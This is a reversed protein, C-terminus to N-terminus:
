RLSLIEGRRMGTNIALIVIPQLHERDGVCQLLLKEQEDTTLYRTRRNDERLMQVQACPNVSAVGDRIAMNFIRSIMALERNVSAPKRTEGFKTKGHKRESKYKEILLPSIEDFTKRKFFAKIPILLYKDNKSRKNEKSWKMYVLEAYDIFPKSPEKIGYTKNHLKELEKREAEEAQAKTRTM